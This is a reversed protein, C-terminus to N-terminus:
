RTNEGHRRQSPGRAWRITGANILLTDCGGLKEKVFEVTKELQEENTMDMQFTYIEKAGLDECEKKVTDLEAQAFSTIVYRCGPRKAYIHAICRGIGSSKTLNPPIPRAPVLLLPNLRLKFETDLFADSYRM